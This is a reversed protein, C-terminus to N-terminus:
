LQCVHRSRVGTFPAHKRAQLCASIFKRRRAPAELCPDALLGAQDAGYRDAQVVAATHQPPDALDAAAEAVRLAGLELPAPERSLGFQRLKLGAAYHDSLGIM